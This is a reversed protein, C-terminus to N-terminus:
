RWIKNGGKAANRKAGSSATNERKTVTKKTELKRSSDATVVHQMKEKERKSKTCLNQSYNCGTHANMSLKSGHATLYPHSSSSYGNSSVYNAKVDSDLINAGVGAERSQKFGMGEVERKNKVAKPEAPNVSNTTISSDTVSQLKAFSSKQIQLGPQYINGDAVPDTQLLVGKRPRVSTPRQKLQNGLGVPCDTPKELVVDCNLHNVNEGGNLDEDKPQHYSPKRREAKDHSGEAEAESHRNDKRYMLLYATSSRLSKDGSGFLPQKVGAVIDDNFHYWEKNEFSKIQATYHGGILNGFHNVLAYLDYKCNEMHLTQPVDVKCHLKVYCRYKYDFSFRQLLLTLIRPNQTIECGFDADQKTNCRTCYMKNDGCVKEGKFFAKLGKEVSYTQHCSNDVALPLFWFSSRSDHTDKCRLCTTKHSVEGKFIKSADPSTRWLIKEFYEAADRQEYVNTIELKKIVQHTKAMKKQLDAFLEGLYPDIITSDKSCCGKVAERFDETMFLVQLISNLYCTLGPSKLGHYDSITLRDLKERFMEVLGHNM